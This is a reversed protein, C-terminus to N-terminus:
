AGNISGYVEVECSAVTEPDEIIIYKGAAGNCNFSQFVGNKAEESGKSTACQRCDVDKKGPCVKVIGKKM